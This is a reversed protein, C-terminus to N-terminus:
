ASSAGKQEQNTSVKQCSNPNSKTFHKKADKSNTTHDKRKLKDIYHIEKISKQINSWDQIPPFAGVPDHHM